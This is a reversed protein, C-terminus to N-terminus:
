KPFKGISKEYAEDKWSEPIMEDDVGEIQWWKKEGTAAKKEEPKPKEVRKDSNLLYNLKAMYLPISTDPMYMNQAYLYFEAGIIFYFDNYFEVKFEPTIYFSYQPQTEYKKIRYAAEVTFDIKQDDSSYFNVGASGTFAMDGQYNGNGSINEEDYMALSYRFDGPRVKLFLGFLANFEDAIDIIRPDAAFRYRFPIKLGALVGWWGNYKEVFLSAAQMNNYNLQDAKQYIYLFGLNVTYNDPLGMRLMINHEMATTTISGYGTQDRTFLKYYNFYIKNEIYKERYIAQVKWEKVSDGGYDYLTDAFSIGPISLLVLLLLWLIRM